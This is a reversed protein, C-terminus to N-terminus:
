HCLLLEVTKTFFFINIIEAV